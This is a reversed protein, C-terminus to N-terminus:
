VQTSASEIIPPRTVANSESLDTFSFTMSKLPDVGFTVLDPDFYLNATKLM